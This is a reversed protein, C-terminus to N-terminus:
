KWRTDPNLILSTIERNGRYAKLANLPVIKRKVRILPLLLILIKVSLKIILIVDYVIGVCFPTLALKSIKWSTM